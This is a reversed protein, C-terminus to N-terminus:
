ERALRRCPPCPAMGRAFPIKHNASQIPLGASRRWTGRSRARPVLLVMQGIRQNAGSVRAGQIPPSMQQLPRLSGPASDRSTVWLGVNKVSGHTKRDVMWGQVWGTGFIGLLDRRSRGIQELHHCRLTSTSLPTGPTCLRDQQERRQKQNWCGRRRRKPWRWYSMRPSTHDRTWM